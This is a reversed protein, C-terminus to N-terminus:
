HGDRNFQSPAWEDRVSIASDYVHRELVRRVYDSLLRGNLRSLKELAHLLDEEVRISPLSELKKPPRRIPM